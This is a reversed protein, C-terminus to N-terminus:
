RVYPYLGTTAVGLSLNSLFYGTVIDSQHLFLEKRDGLCIVFSFYELLGLFAHAILCTAASNQLNRVSHAHASLASSSSAALRFSNLKCGGSMGLKSCARVNEIRYRSIPLLFISICGIVTLRTSM